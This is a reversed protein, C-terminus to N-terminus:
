LIQGANKFREFGGRKIGKKVIGAFLKQVRSIVNKRYYTALDPFNGSEAIILKPLAGMKTGSVVQGVRTLFQEVLPACAGKHAKVVAELPGINTQVANDLVRRFLYEKSEFYLYVTGKSVGARTAVDNLRTAAYGKELFVDLAAELIEGPRAAKQQWRTLPPPSAQKKLKRAGYKSERAFRKPKQKPKAPM